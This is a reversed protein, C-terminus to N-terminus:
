WASKLEHVILKGMTVSKGEARIALALNKPDLMVPMPVFMRGKDAFVELGTRDAFIRLNLKSGSHRAACRQGNVWLENTSGNYRIPVERVVLELVSGLEVDAEVEIEALESAIEGLPNGSGPELTAIDFKTSKDRLAQLEPVPTWTMRIGAEDRILGLDMPISMSQNFPMGKTETQFWGIQIRRGPTDSFTQAAYFGRGLHGKLIPTEPKFERGDFSGVQYDSNAGTLVWRTEKPNGDVPLEFLDPCEHFGEIRSTPTWTKLDKSVLFQITPKGPIELYLVMVWQRSPEHWIVKPDRDANEILGIIPNGKWKTFTRGDLSYALGQSFKTGAYTYFLLMAPNGPSGLGSDNRVDVIASGSFITGLADPHLAIPLETWHVLDKSVAHGWHMNGWSWGFPNHQFFLHYEGNFFVLGNPDNLWGQRASFHFQGRGSEQYPKVDGSPEDSQSINALARSGAPAEDLQIKVTKGKWNSVDISAYREPEGDAIEVTNPMAALGGVTLSLGRAPNGPKLPINLFRRELRLTRSVDREMMPPMRDTQVIQDVNIHGWGGTAQDVIRLLALKGQLGSLRWGDRALAESGGPVRNRGTSWRVAKGAVILELRLRVREYGGGILFELNSREIKFEPSTLTGMASDGGLFTNVLGRGEFGSVAMQNPLTGQAPATGFANGTARWGGYDSGEFDAIILDPRQWVFTALLGLLM